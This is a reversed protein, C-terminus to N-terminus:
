CTETETTTCNAKYCAGTASINNGRKHNKMFLYKRLCCSTKYMKNKNIVIGFKSLREYFISYAIDMSLKASPNTKNYKLVINELSTKNDVLNLIEFTKSNIVVRYGLEIHTVIYESSNNFERIEIEDAKFVIQKKLEEKM